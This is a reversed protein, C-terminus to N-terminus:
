EDCNTETAPPNDSPLAPGLIRMTIQFPEDWTMNVIGVNMINNLPIGGSSFDSPRTNCAGGYNYLVQNFGGINDHTSSLFEVCWNGCGEEDYTCDTGFNIFHYEPPLNIARSSITFPLGDYRFTGSGYDGKGDNNNQFYFGCAPVTCGCESCDYVTPLVDIEEQYVFLWNLIVPQLYLEIYEKEVANMATTEIIAMYATKADDTNPACFLACMLEDQYTTLEDRVNELDLGEGTVLAQVLKAVFGLLALLGAFGAGTLVFTVVTTVTVIGANLYGEASNAILISQSQIQRRVIEGAAKCKYYDYTPVDPFNDDPITPPGDSPEEPLETGVSECGCGSQNQIAVTMASLAEVIGTFVDECGMILSEQLENGRQQADKINGTFGDWFRGFALDSLTGAIVAKWKLSNPLCFMGITYGDEPTWDDPIPTKGM